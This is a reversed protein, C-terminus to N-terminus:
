LITRKAIPTVGANTVAGTRRSRTGNSTAAVSALPSADTVQQPLRKYAWWELGDYVARELWWGDGVVVLAPDIHALPYGCYYDVDAIQTFAQWDIAHSGEATGVWRVDTTDHGYRNLVALTEALLNEDLPNADEAEPSNKTDVIM